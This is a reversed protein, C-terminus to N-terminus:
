ALGDYYDYMRDLWDFAPHRGGITVDVIDHWIHHLHWHNAMFVVGLRQERFGITLARAPGNDGDHWFSDTDGHHQLGWGLGRSINHHLVPPDDPYDVKWSATDNMAVQPTLMETITDSRLHGPQDPSPRMMACMFRAYDTPTTHLGAAAIMEPRQGKRGRTIEDRGFHAAAVPLPSADTWLYTSSDMGLPQLVTEQIIEEGSKGTIHEVVRQLYMFGEGSYYFHDGPTFHMELKGRDPHWGEDDWCDPRWNPFGATHCLVHRATVLAIRPEDPLYPEDLYEDLPTDLDIVGAECLNLVGCAFVTKSLSCAEFVTDTTVPAGTGLNAIGFGQTWVIEADRILAISLGPIRSRGLWDPMNDEVSKIIDSIPTNTHIKM